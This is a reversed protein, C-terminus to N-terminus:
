ASILHECNDLILLLRRTRLANALVDMLKRGPQEPIGLAKALLQPVRDQDVLGALEVVAIESRASRRIQSAIELALRTKGVGGSGTLTVLRSSELLSGLEGLERERGVFSTLPLPLEAASPSAEHTDDSRGRAADLVARDADSLRLAAVLRRFSTPQPHRRAGRELDSLGRASLGSREALEEQTLGASMRYRRLLEGFKTPGGIAMDTQESARMMAIRWRLGHVGVLTAAAHADRPIRAHLWGDLVVVTHRNAGPLHIRIDYTNCKRAIAGM